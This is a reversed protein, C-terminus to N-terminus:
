LDKASLFTYSSKMCDFADRRCIDQEVAYVEVGANKCAPLISDWDMNGEGVPAMVPGDKQIVEKDKLHIVPARGPIQQLIRVPNVGAHVAWYTDLELMFDVQANILIDYLTSKGQGIRRFEHSHNHYGFRIGSEKLRSIVPASDELFQRYGQEGESEYRGPLGGIAAYNCGLTLHFEIEAETNGSLADWSRHTASCSIGLDDMYKKAEVASVQPSAGDMAGIASLQVAQYGIQRIKKLSELFDSSTKTYDRLSYMQVAIVACM